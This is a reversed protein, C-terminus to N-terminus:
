RDVHRAPAPPRMFPAPRRRRASWRILEAVAFSPLGFAVGTFAAMFPGGALLMLAVEHPATVGVRSWGLAFALDLGVAAGAWSGALFLGLRRWRDVVLGAAFGVPIGAWLGFGTCGFLGNCLGLARSAPEMVLMPLSSVVFGVAFARSLRLDSM